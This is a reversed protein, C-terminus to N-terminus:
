SSETQTSGLRYVAYRKDGDVVIETNVPHGDSRLDRVRAALRFCGYDRLAELPTISGYWKMHTLIKECQNMKRNEDM